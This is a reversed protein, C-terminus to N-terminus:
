FIDKQDINDISIYTIALGIFTLTIPFIIFSAVTLKENSIGLFIAIITSAIITTKVSKQRMGFYLAVLSMGSASLDYLITNKFHEWIMLTTMNENIFHLYNSLISLFSTVLLKTLTISIFTFFIIIALKAILIKKRNIPYTFMLAITKDNYEEIILKSILVGSFVIFVMRTISDTILFFEKSGTSILDRDLYLMFFLFIVICLNAILAKKIYSAFNNKKLELRMLKLM